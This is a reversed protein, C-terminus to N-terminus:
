QGAFLELRQEVEHCLDQDNSLVLAQKFDAVAKEKEGKLDYAIARTTYAAAHQPDLEVARSYDAIARGM